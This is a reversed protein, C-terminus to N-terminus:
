ISAFKVFIGSVPNLTSHQKFTEELVLAQEKSLRLKKRTGDCNGGEEEDSGGSGGGHSCSAKEADNEDVGGDGRTAALDRKNGSVTSVTSKPSSMGAVDEELNIVVAASPTRNVNSGRLFSGVDSNREVSLM